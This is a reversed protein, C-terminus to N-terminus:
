TESAKRLAAAIDFDMLLQLVDSQSDEPIDEQRSVWRYLVPDQEAMLAEFADLQKEDFQPLYTEAFRGLILDTEKTGRYWCRYLLRKRRTELDEGM